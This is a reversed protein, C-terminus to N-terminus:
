GMNFSLVSSLFNPMKEDNEEVFSQAVGADKAARSLLEKDYYSIGLRDAILRGLQRGGSGFQRGITIVLPTTPPQPDSNQM